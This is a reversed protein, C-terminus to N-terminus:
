DDDDVLDTDIYSSMLADLETQFQNETMEDAFVQRLQATAAGEKAYLNIAEIKRTLTLAADEQETGRRVLFQGRSPARTDLRPFRGLLQLMQGPSTAWEVSLFRTIWSLSIGIGVSSMTAVLIARPMERIHKLLKRRQAGAEEGTIVIVDEFHKSLELALMNAEDRHYTFVGAHSAELTASTLWERVLLHTERKDARDVYLPSVDCEPLYDALDARTLRYTFPAMRDVLEQATDPNAGGYSFGSDAYENPTPLCYRQQFRFDPEGGKTPKGWLGPQLTHLLNWVQKPENPMLTATLELVHANPNAKRLLMARQSAKSRPSQLYHAEDFVLLDWGSAAANALLEYSFVQMPHLYSVDRELLAKKSGSKTERGATIPAGWPGEEWWENLRQIWADRVIAPCAVLVHVCRLAKAIEFAMPTKGCGTDANLIARVPRPGSLVARVVAEQPLHLRFRPAPVPESVLEPALELACAISDQLM